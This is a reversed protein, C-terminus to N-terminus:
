GEQAYFDNGELNYGKIWFGEKRTGHDGFTNLYEKIYTPKGFIKIIEDFDRESSNLIYYSRTKDLLEKLDKFDQITFKYKYQKGGSLYPPDLYFLTKEGGYKKICERFDLNEINTLLKVYKWNRKINDITFRMEDDFVNINYRYSRLGANFSHGVLYLFRIAMEEDNLNDNDWDTNKYEDFLDRSALSFELSNLVRERKENDMLVKLVNVLRKDIDNYVRNVKYILPLSLIVTGSGGFVDVVCRIDKKNIIKIIVDIVDDLMYYKGGFYPFLKVKKINKNM